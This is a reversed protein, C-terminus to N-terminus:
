LAGKKLINLNDIKKALEFDLITLGGRDHTTTTVRIKNWGYIFIDPHHDLCEALIAISNAIAVATIFDDAVIERVLQNEKRQWLPIEKLSENIENESLLPPRSM